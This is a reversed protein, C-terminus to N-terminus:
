YPYDLYYDCVFKKFDKTYLNNKYRIIIHSFAILQKETKSFFLVHRNPKLHEKPIIITIHSLFLKKELAIELCEVVRNSPLILCFVGNESLNNASFEVIDNLRLTKEHRSIVRKNQKPHIGQTFFPPNSVILDYYTNEKPKFQQLSIHFVTLKNKWRSLEFNSKAQICSHKDIDIAHIECDYKQALVLAVVGCGTGIDLIYAPNDVKACIGLLVADTGVKMTSSDDYLSFQKFHFPKSM